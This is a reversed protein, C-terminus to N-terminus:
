RYAQPPRCHELIVQAVIEPHQHQPHHGANELLLLTRGAVKARLYEAGALYRTDDTGVIHVLPPVLESAAFDPPSPSPTLLDHFSVQVLKQVLVPALNIMRSRILRFDYGMQGACNCRSSM